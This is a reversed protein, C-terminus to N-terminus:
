SNEAGPVGVTLEPHALRLAASAVTNKWFGKASKRIEARHLATAALRTLTEVVEPAALEIERQPEDIGAPEEM